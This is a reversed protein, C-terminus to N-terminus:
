PEVGTKAAASEGVSRLAAVAAAADMHQAVSESLSDVAAKPGGAEDRLEEVLRRALSALSVGEAISLVPVAVAHKEEAALKLEVAMLSDFGLESLPRHPDIEEPPQRLISAAEARLAQVIREAAAADDLGEIMSPLDAGGAEVEAGERPVVEEFLPSRLVPLERALAAWRM